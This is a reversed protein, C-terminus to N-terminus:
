AKISFITKRGEHTIVAGPKLSYEEGQKTCVTLLGADTADLQDMIIPRTQGDIELVIWSRESKGTFTNAVAFPKAIVEPMEFTSRKDVPKDSLKFTKM